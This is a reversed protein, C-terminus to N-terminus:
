VMSLNVLPLTLFAAAKDMDLPWVMLLLNQWVIKM